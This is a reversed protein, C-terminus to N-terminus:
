LFWSEMGQVSKLFWHFVFDATECKYIGERRMEKREGCSLRKKGGHPHAAVTASNQSLSAALAAADAWAQQPDLTGLRLGIGGDEEGLEVAAGAEDVEDVGAGLAETWTSINCAPRSTVDLQGENADGLEESILQTTLKHTRNPTHEAINRDNSYSAHPRM